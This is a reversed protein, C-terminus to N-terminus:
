FRWFRFRRKKAKQGIMKGRLELEERAQAVLETDSGEVGHDRLSRIAQALEPELSDHADAPASQETQSEGSAQIDNKSQDECASPQLAAPPTNHDIIQQDSLSIVEDPRDGNTPQDESDTAPSEAQPAPDAASRDLERARAQLEADREALTARM